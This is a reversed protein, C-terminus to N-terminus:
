RQDSNLSWFAIDVSSAHTLMIAEVTGCWKKMTIITNLREQITEQELYAACVQQFLNFNRPRYNHLSYRFSGVDTFPFANTSMLASFFCNGDGLPDPMLHFEPNKPFSLTTMKKNDRSYFNQFPVSLCNTFM